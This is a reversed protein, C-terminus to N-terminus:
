APVPADDFLGHDFGTDALGHDFGMDADEM